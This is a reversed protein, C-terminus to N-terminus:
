VEEITYNSDSLFPMATIPKSAVELGHALLGPACFIQFLGAGARPHFGLDAFVAGAIGTTLWGLRHPRLAEALACGWSLAPGAGPLTLLRAVIQSSLEDIGGYYTGFGPFPHWDGEGEPAQTSMSAVGHAIARPDEKMTKRFFRICSEISGAGLYQGGLLSLSIPLIQAPDTKGVGAYMAARTAPHRPGPNILAIMLNELLEAQNPSPLEGRMILYLVDIFSRKEILELLDYGYCHCSKAIYPNENDGKEFWIRTSLRDSFSEKRGRTQQYKRTM